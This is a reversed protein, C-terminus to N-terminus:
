FNVADSFGEVQRYTNTDETPDIPAEFGPHRPRQNQPPPFRCKNQKPMRSNMQKGKKKLGKRKTIVSKTKTVQTGSNEEDDEREGSEEKSPKKKKGKKSPESDTETEKAKKKNKGKKNKKACDFFPVLCTSLFIGLLVFKENFLWNIMWQIIM